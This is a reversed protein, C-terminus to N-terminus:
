SGGQGPLFPVGRVKEPPREGLLGLITPYVDIMDARQRELPRNAFLIGQVTAPDLTCHDGSWPRDNDMFLEKPMGGLASQWSLRYGESTTVLMDPVLNPDFDHYIEERLYVHAVPHVGTAPDVVAELERALQKRLEEYQRGPAVIGSSERGRLNIYLGGLGLAYARSRSWDVNPWFQGKDFLTELDQVKGEGGTLAIYGNRALWTDINFSRRWSSFGHDSLVILVDDPRLKKMTEGVISDMTKYTDLFAKQYKPARAPDYAPHTPDMFRFLIHGVRDTFEFYHVLLKENGDLFHELLKRYAAETNHVDELFVDEDVVRESVGWTDVAWGTTKYPGVDHKLIAAWDAPASILFGPPLREPDFQLSTLYLKIEPDLALLRFRAMAHIAIVPNFRFTVELWPSWEGPRVVASNGSTSIKLSSRDPAVELTMPADIRPPKGFLRNPPGPIHTRITGENTDLQIIEISFENDAGLQFFPDSTYYTPSGIRGRVDPVGLGSLLHGHPFPRAPFTVPIRGVVSSLGHEGAVKWFPIGQRNNVVHPVKEPLWHTGVWFGAGGMALAPVLAWAWARRRKLLVLPLFFVLWGAVAGVALLVAGNHAGWLFTASEEKAVGFAPMYTEPDRVLFDFIRTGGPDRGTTFTSWSVPTQAPITPNLRAYGGAKALAALHPLEGQAMWRETLQSDAGDFGLIVVRGRPAAGALPVMFLVFACSLIWRKM